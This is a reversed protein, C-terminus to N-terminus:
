RSQDTRSDGDFVKAASAEEEAPEKDPGSWDIQPEGEDRGLVPLPDVHRWAPTSALMSALLAGARAAWWVAGASLAMGAIRASELAIDLPEPSDNDHRVTRIAFDVPPAATPIGDGAFDVLGMSPTGGIRPDILSGSRVPRALAVQVPEVAEAFTPAPPEGGAAPSRLFDTAGPAGLGAASTAVVGAIQPVDALPTEARKPTPAPSEGPARFSVVAVGPGAVAAGDTVFISFSPGLAANTHVFRVQGAAVQAQTFSTLAVGPAGALEFQGNTAGAVLFVLASAANDVDTASLNGGGMTVTQLPDISLAVPGLVPADNVATVDLTVGVTPSLLPGGSGFNGLDNVFASLPVPATANPATTFTVGGGALFANIATTTGALAISGTGSGAVVVGAGSTAVLTGSPVDLTLSVPGATGDVDGVVIGVIPSAVDEVVTMAPPAAITPADNVPLVDVALSATASATSGGVAETATATVTLTFDTDADLPPTVRLLALNWGTVAVSQSGATAIFSSTGDSLTAGVPIASVTVALAESGDSDVLATAVSLAIATDEDGSAPSVTLTPTDAVANVTVALNANTTATAGNAIETATSAVSLTFDVDSQLPPTIRLQALNWATIAVSQSGATATFTNVGDSLTAGVPIASVTLALTESGDTDALAPAIVLPIAADEDGAAPNATLTPTDAVPTVNISFTRPGTTDTGGNATGGSDTVFASVIATGSANPAV